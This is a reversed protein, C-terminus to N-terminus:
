NSRSTSLFHINQITNNVPIFIRHRPIVSADINLICPIPVNTDYPLLSSQVLQLQPPKHRQVPIPIKLSPKRHKKFNEEQTRPKNGTNKRERKKKLNKGKEENGRRKTEREKKKAIKLIKNEGDGEGIRGKRGGM